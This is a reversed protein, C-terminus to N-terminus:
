LEKAAVFLVADESLGSIRWSDYVTNYTLNVLGETRSGSPILVLSNERDPEVDLTGPDLGLWDYSLIELIPYQTSGKSSVIEVEETEEQIVTGNYYISGDTLRMEYFSSPYGSESYDPIANLYVRIYIPDTITPNEPTRDTDLVITGSVNSSELSSTDTEVLVANYGSEQIDNESLRIVNDVDSYTWIATESDLTEPNYPYKYRIILEGQKGSRIIGGGGRAIEKIVEISTKGAVELVNEPIYYDMINYELTFGPALSAIASSAMGASLYQDTLKTSYPEQLTAPKSRGWLSISRAKVDGELERKELLFYFIDTGITIKVRLTTSGDPALSDWLSIDSISAKFSNVFYDEALTLSMSEVSDKISINDILIDYDGTPASPGIDAVLEFDGWNLADLTGISNLLNLDKILPNISLIDNILTIDKQLKDGIYNILHEEVFVSSDLSNLLNSLVLKYDHGIRNILYIEKKSEDYGLKNLLNLEKLFDQLLANILNFRLTLPLSNKMSHYKIVSILNKLIYRLQMSIKSILFYELKVEQLIKWSVTSLLKDFGVKWSTDQFLQSIGVKWAIDSMLISEESDASNFSPEPSVYPRVAVWDAKVESGSYKAQLQPGCNENPTNSTITDKLSGNEYFGVSGSLYTITLRTYSSLDSTRTDITSVGDNYCNYNKGGDYAFGAVDINGGSGDSRQDIVVGTRDQEMIEAKYEFAHGYGYKVKAGVMQWNTGSAGGIVTLISGSVSYSGDSLWPNWKNTDLVTGGFDDFFMFTSNGNSVNSASSNGYYCYVDVNSGLDDSVRLWITALRNPTTGTVDEVWFYLLSTGDDATFRLDGSEDKSSPFSQSNGEVHFDYGTAGSSEGVLLTIRYSTGAGSQGTITIKKRHDWGSMWGM